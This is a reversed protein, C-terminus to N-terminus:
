IRSDIETGVRAGIGVLLGDVIFTPLVDGLDGFTMGAIVAGMENAGSTSYWDGATVGDLMTTLGEHQMGMASALAMVAFASIWVSDAKTHVQWFIAGAAIATFVAWMEPMAWADATWPTDIGGAETALAIALISGVMQGVLRMGNAIHADTDGLDGTLMHCWTVVPLIHAGAFAMWAAALIVAGELGMGSSGFVLWSVVFAGGVEAKMANMDVNMNKM